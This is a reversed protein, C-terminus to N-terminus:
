ALRLAPFQVTVRLGGQPAQGLAVSAGHRQAIAQVIALGLGCGEEAVAGVAARRHFRDFAHEREGPAIGPGTDDVQLVAGGQESIRVEVRGGAPTYRVANDVLNRVMIRLAERDGRVTAAAGTSLPRELSLEVGRSRALAHTDAVAEAAPEALLLPVLERARADQPENRALTLLQSVLHVAREVAAGLASRAQDRAAEDPARELLQLQLRLATLPSRLEHAADAIFSRQAAFAEDLRRLLGNLQEVLPSIEEPLPGPSLPMLSHVDRRQVELALRRLPALSGGVVAAIAVALLSLLVLMPLVVRLAAARALANRVGVPQAVDIVGDLTQLGYARWPRGQLQLDAYGLLPRNITPMGQVGRSAYEIGGFLNWIEVIYDTGSEPLLRPALPIQSELSLAMQRLQYDLLDSTEALVRRYTLAGTLVSVATVLALLALLLRTRISRM